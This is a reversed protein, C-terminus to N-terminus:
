ILGKDVSMKIRQTRKSAGLESKILDRVSMMEAISGYEIEKDSFKVKKVGSFIASEIATLDSQTAAM